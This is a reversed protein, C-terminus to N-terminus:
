MGITKAAAQMLDTPTNSKVEITPVVSQLVDKVKQTSTRRNRALTRIYGYFSNGYKDRNAAGASASRQKLFEQTAKKATTLGGKRGKEKASLARRSVLATAMADGLTINVLNAVVM